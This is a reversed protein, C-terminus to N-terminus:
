ECSLEWRTFVEAFRTAHRNPHRRRRDARPARIGIRSLSSVHTGFLTHASKRLSTRRLPPVNQRTDGPRQRHGGHRRSHGGKRSRLLLRRRDLHEASGTRSRAGPPHGPRGPREPREPREPCEPREPHGPRGPHSPRELHGPHCPHGSRGPHDPTARPSHGRDRRDIESTARGATRHPRVYPFPVLPGAAGATLTAPPPPAARATRTTRINSAAPPPGPVPEESVSIYQLTVLQRTHHRLEARVNEWASAGIVDRRRRLRNRARGRESLSQHRLLCSPPRPQGPADSRTVDEDDGQRDERSMRHAEAHALRAQRVDRVHRVPQDADDDADEPEHGQAHPACQSIRTMPDPASSYRRTPLEVSAINPAM